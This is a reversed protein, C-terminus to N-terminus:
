ELRLPVWKKYHNHFSSDWFIFAQKASFCILFLFNKCRWRYDSFILYCHLIKTKWSVSVLIEFKDCCTILFFKSNRYWTINQNWSFMKLVYMKKYLHRWNRIKNAMLQFYFWFLLWFLDLIIDIYQYFGREMQRKKYPKSEDARFSFRIKEKRKQM